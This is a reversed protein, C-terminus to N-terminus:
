FTGELGALRWGLVPGVRPAPHTRAATTGVPSSWQTFFLGVVGTTVAFVSTVAIVVNTRAQAFSGTDYAQKCGGIFYGNTCAAKVNAKGPNNLTDIGSWVILGVGIASLTAGTIFVTPGFPKSPPPLTAPVRPPAPPPAVVPSPVPVPTPTPAPMAPPELELSQTGGEKAEIAIRTNREDSWSVLVQHTGPNVFLRSEKVREAAVIKEDIAVSYEAPSSILVEYVLPRAQAIVDGAVRATTADGPFRRM